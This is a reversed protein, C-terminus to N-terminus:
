NPDFKSKERITSMKEDFILHSMSSLHSEFEELEQEFTCMDHQVCIMNWNYNYTLDDHHLMQMMM